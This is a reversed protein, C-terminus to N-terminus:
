PRGQWAHLVHHGSCDVLMVLGDASSCLPHPNFGAARRSALVFVQLAGAFQLGKDIVRGGPQQRVRHHRMGFRAHGLLRHLLRFQLLIKALEGAAVRILAVPQKM